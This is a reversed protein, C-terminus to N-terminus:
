VTVDGHGLVVANASLGTKMRQRNKGRVKVTYAIQWFDVAVREVPNKNCLRLLFLKNEDRMVPDNRLIRNLSDPFNIAWKLEISAAIRYPFNFIDATLRYAKTGSVTPLVSM